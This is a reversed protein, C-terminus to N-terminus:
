EVIKVEVLEQNDKKVFHSSKKGLLTNECHKKNPFLCNLTFDAVWEPRTTGVRGKWYLKTAHGEHITNEKCKKCFLTDQKGIAAVYGLYGANIDLNHCKVCRHAIADGRIYYETLLDM